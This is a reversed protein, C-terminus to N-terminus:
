RCLGDDDNHFHPLVINHIQHRRIFPHCEHRETLNSLCGMAQRLCRPDQNQKLLDILNLLLTDNLAMEVKNEDNISLSCLTAATEARIELNTARTGITLPETVNALFVQRRFEPHSSIGRLTSIAALQDNSDESCAMSILAPLGGERVIDARRRPDAALNCLAYAICRQTELDAQNGAFYLFIGTM